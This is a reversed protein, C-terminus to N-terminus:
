WQRGAEATGASHWEDGTSNSGSRYSASSGSDSCAGVCLKKRTM